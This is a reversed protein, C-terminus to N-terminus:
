SQRTTMPTGASSSGDDGFTETGSSTTGSSSSSDSSTGQAVTATRQTGMSGSVGIVGFAIAFTILATAWVRRRIASLREARAHLKAAALERPTPASSTMALM